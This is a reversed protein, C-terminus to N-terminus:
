SSEPEAESRSTKLPVPDEDSDILYSGSNSTPQDLLSETLGSAIGPQMSDAPGELQAHPTSTSIHALKNVLIVWADDDPLRKRNLPETVKDITEIAGVYAKSWQPSAQAKEEIAEAHRELRAIREARRGLGRDLIEQDKLRRAELIQAYYDTYARVIWGYDVEIPGGEPESREACRSLIAPVTYGSVMLDVIFRQNPTLSNIDTIPVLSRTSKAPWPVQM